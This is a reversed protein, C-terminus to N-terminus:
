WPSWGKFQNYIYIMIMLLVLFFLFSFKGKVIIKVSDVFGKYGKIVAATIVVVLYTIFIPAIIDMFKLIGSLWEALKFGGM